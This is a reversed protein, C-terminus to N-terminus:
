CHRGRFFPRGFRGAHPTSWAFAQNTGSALVLGNMRSAWRSSDGSVNYLHPQTLPQAPYVSRSTASAFDEVIQGNADPYAPSVGSAGFRWATQASSASSKVVVFLEAASFGSLFNGFALDAAGAFRVVPWGNLANLAVVPQRSVVTQAADNGCGSRDAWTAVPARDAMGSLADGKLWLALGAAPLNLNGSAPTTATAENSYDSDASFYSAKVRYFYQTGPTVTPDFYSSSGTVTAIQAYVGDSGTKREVYYVAAVTAPAPHWCLSVLQSSIVDASLGTPAAAAAAFGLRHNLYSEVALREESTLVRDFVLVEAIDGDFTGAVQGGLTTAPRYGFSHRESLLPIGNIRATWLGSSSSVNYLHFQDLPQAPVGLTHVSCSAFDDVIGGDTAPYGLSDTSVSSFNWLPRAATPTAAAARLVCFVECETMSYMFNPLCYPATASSEDCHWHLAPNGNLVDAAVTPAPDSATANNGYGSADLWAPLATGDSVGSLSITNLWLRLDAVPVAAGAAFTRVLREESATAGGYTAVTVRYYYETDPALGSDVFSAASNEYVSGVAAYTGGSGTKREITSRVVINAADHSWNLVVQSASLPTAALVPAAPASQLAYKQSLYSGIANRQESTLVSNFVLLEAIDGDFSDVPAGLMPSNTSGFVNQSGSADARGNMWVAWSGAQSSRDYIHFEGVSSGPAWIRMTRSAFDDSLNGDTNPYSAYGRCGLLWLRKAELPQANRARLVVVVEAQEWGSMLDPLNFFDNHGDFRLVPQSNLVGLRCTPQNLADSQVADNGHGSKDAWTAM